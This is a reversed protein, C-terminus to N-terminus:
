AKVCLVKVQSPSAVIGPANLAIGNQGTMSCMRATPLGGSLLTFSPILVRDPGMVMGSLVGLNVGAFDGLSITGMTAMTHTPMCSSLCNLAATGPNSTVSMAINPYPIPVPVVIPTLCVDPFGISVAPIPGQSKVFMRNDRKGQNHIGQNIGNTTRM